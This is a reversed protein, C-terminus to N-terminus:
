AAILDHDAPWLLSGRIGIAVAHTINAADLATFIMARHRKVTEVSLGLFAATATLDLGLAACRLVDLQRETLPGTRRKYPGRHRGVSQDAPPRPDRDRSRNERVRADILRRVATREQPQM